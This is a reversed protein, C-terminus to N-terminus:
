EDNFVEDLMESLHYEVYQNLSVGGSGSEFNDIDVETLAARVAKEASVIVSTRDQGLNALEQVFDVVYRQKLMEGLSKFESQESNEIWRM